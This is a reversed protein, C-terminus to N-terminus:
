HSEPQSSNSYEDFTVTTIQLKEGKSTVDTKNEPNGEAMRWIGENGVKNTFAIKEDDTMKSFRERWFEKLSQGKPRGPGGPNGPKFLWPKSTKLDNSVENM